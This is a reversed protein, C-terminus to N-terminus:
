KLKLIADTGNTKFNWEHFSIGKSKDGINQLIGMRGNEEGVLFIGKLKRGGCNVNKYKRNVAEQVEEQNVGYTAGKKHEMVNSKREMEM